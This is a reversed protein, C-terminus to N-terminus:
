GYLRRCATELRRTQTAQQTGPPCSILELTALGILSLTAVAAGAYMLRVAARVTCLADAGRPDGAWERAPVGQSVVGAIAPM